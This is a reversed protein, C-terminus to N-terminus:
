QAIQLYSLFTMVLSIARMGKLSSWAAAAIRVGHFCVLVPQGVLPHGGSWLRAESTSRRM